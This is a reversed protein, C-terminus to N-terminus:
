RQNHDNSAAGMLTPIGPCHFDPNITNNEAWLNDTLSQQL